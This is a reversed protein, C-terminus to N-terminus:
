AARSYVCRVPPSEATKTQRGGLFRKSTGASNTNATLQLVVMGCLYLSFPSRLERRSVSRIHSFRGVVDPTQGKIGWGEGSVAVLGGSLWQTGGSTVPSDSREWPPEM